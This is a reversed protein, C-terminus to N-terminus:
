NLLCTKQFSENHIPSIMFPKQVSRFPKILSFTPLCALYMLPAFLLHEPSFARMQKLNGNSSEFIYRYIPSLPQLLKVLGVDSVPLGTHHRRCLPSTTKIIALLKVVHLRNIM